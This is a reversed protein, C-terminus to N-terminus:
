CSFIARCAQRCHSDCCPPHGGPSPRRVLCHSVSDLTPPLAPCSSQVWDVRSCSGLPLFFSGEDFMGSAASCGGHHNCCRCYSNGHIEGDALGSESGRPWVRQGQDCSHHPSADHVTQICHRICNSNSHQSTIVHDSPLLPSSLDWSGCVNSSSPVRGRIIGLNHQLADAAPVVVCINQLTVM